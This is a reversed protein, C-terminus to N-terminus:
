RALFPLLWGFVVVLLLTTAAIARRHTKLLVAFPLAM